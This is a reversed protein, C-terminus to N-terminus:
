LAAGPRHRRRHHGALRAPRVGPGARLWISGGGLVLLREPLSTLDWITDSTLAGASALGDIPPITPAAGTAVLAQSFTVSRNGANAIDASHAGTFTLNGTLIHVGAAELAEVSDTPAIAAIASRVHAMVQTFDVRVDGTHVGFRAATRADAAAAAAALLSKSPVCGTWLCDGGTRDREVLLVRAGFSAATKAGVIGATGGGVVLLDWNQPTLDPTDLRGEAGVQERAITM